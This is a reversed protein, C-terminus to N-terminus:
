TSSRVEVWYYSPQTGTLVNDSTWFPDSTVAYLTGDISLRDHQAVEIESEQGWPIGIQGETSAVSQLADILNLRSGTHSCDRQRREGHIGELRSPAFVEVTLLLHNERGRRASPAVRVVERPLPAGHPVLESDEFYGRVREALRNCGQDIVLAQRCADTSVLDPM